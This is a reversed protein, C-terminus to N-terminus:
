RCGLKPSPMAAHQLPKSMGADPWFYGALRGAGYLPACWLTSTFLLGVIGSWGVETNRSFRFRMYEAGTLMVVPVVIILFPFRYYGFVAALFMGLKGIPWLANGGRQEPEDVEPM